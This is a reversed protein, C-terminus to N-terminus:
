QNYNKVWVTEKAAKSTAIYKSETTSDATIVQKSSKWAVVGGNLKFVYSCTEMPGETGSELDKVQFTEIRGKPTPKMVVLSIRLGVGGFEGKSGHVNRQSM